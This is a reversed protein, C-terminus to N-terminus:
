AQEKKECPQWYVCGFGAKTHLRPDAKDVMMARKFRLLRDNIALYIFEYERNSM